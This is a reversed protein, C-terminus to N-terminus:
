SAWTAPGAPVPGRRGGSLSAGFVEQTEEPREWYGKAVSPGPGLDRRRSERLASNSELSRRDRRSPRRRSGRELGAVSRPVAGIPEAVEGRALAGADLLATSLGAARLAARSSFRRRPWATARSSRRGASAAPPSRRPSGSWRRRAFRSPATSRWRWSSLDLGEREKPTAKEVCLEYAFNPAGSITARGTRSIARLWRLPRQLFHVPSFLTSFGGCYVTQIVGGILGMDHFLPLWFVGRSESTTGFNAKIRASNALLNGHTIMVGKPDGTSGSTYQLFALTDRSAGPDSWSEPSPGEDGGDDTM